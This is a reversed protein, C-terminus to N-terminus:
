FIFNRSYLLYSFCSCVTELLTISVHFYLLIVMWFLLYNWANCFKYRYFFFCAISCFGSVHIGNLSISNPGSMLMYRSHNSLRAAFWDKLAILITNNIYITIPFIDASRKTGSISILWQRNYKRTYCIKHGVTNLIVNIM